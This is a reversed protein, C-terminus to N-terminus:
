VAQFSFNMMFYSADNFYTQNLGTNTGTPPVGGTLYITPDNAPMYGGFFSITNMNAWHSAVPASYASATSIPTFPLGTIVGNGTSSGKASLQIWLTCYVLRGIRTYTGVRGNSAFTMGTSGSGFLLNPTWTGEEYDDLTNADSSASQAAPFTIGSGSGAPTAGGVGMTTAIIPTTLTQSPAISNSEIRSIAM